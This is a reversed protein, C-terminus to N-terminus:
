AHFVLYVRIFFVGLVLALIGMSFNFWYSARQMDKKLSFIYVVGALLCAVGIGLAQFEPIGSSVLAVAFIGVFLTLMIMKLQLLTLGWRHLLEKM